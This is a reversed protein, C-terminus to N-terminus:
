ESGGSRYHTSHWEGRARVPGSARVGEALDALTPAPAEVDELMETPVRAVHAVGAAYGETLIPTTSERAVAWRDGLHVGTRLEGRVTGTDRRTHVDMRGSVSHLAVMSALPAEHKIVDRMMASLRGSLEVQPCCPPPSELLAWPAEDGDNPLPNRDTHDCSCAGEVHDQWAATLALVRTIPKSDAGVVPRPTFMIVGGDGVAQALLRSKDEFEGPAARERLIYRSMPTNVAHLYLLTQEDCYGTICAGVSAWDGGLASRVTGIDFQGNDDEM